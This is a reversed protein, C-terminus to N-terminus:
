IVMIGRDATSRKVIKFNGARISALRGKLRIRASMAAIQNRGIRVDAALSKTRNTRGTNWLRRAAPLLIAHVRAHGLAVTRLRPRNGKAVANEAETEVLIGLLHVAVGVCLTVLHRM